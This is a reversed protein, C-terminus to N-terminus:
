YTPLCHATRSALSSNDKKLQNLHDAESLVKFVFVSFLDSTEAPRFLFWFTDISCSRPQQQQQQTLFCSAVAAVVAAALQRVIVAEATLPPQPAVLCRRENCPFRLIAGLAKNSERGARAPM